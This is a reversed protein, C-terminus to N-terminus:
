GNGGTNDFEQSCFFRSYTYNIKLVQAIKVIRFISLVDKHTFKNTYSETEMLYVWLLLILRLNRMNVSKGNNGLITMDM